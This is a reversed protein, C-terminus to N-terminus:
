AQRGCERAGEPVSEVVRMGRGTSLVLVGTRWRPPFSLEAMLGILNAHCRTCRQVGDKPEGAIHVIKKM